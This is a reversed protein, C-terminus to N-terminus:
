DAPISKMWLNMWEMVGENNVGLVTGAGELNLGSRIEYVMWEETARLSNLQDADGRILFFGNLDGGHLSLLVTEFSDIAGSQQLGAVYQSFEQFLQASSQERGPVPRNWGVFIINNSM